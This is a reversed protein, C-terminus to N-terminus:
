KKDILKNTERNHVNGECHFGASSEHRTHIYALTKKNIYARLVYDGYTIDLRRVRSM